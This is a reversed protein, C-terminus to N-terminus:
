GALTGQERGATKKPAADHARGYRRLIGLVLLEYFILWCMFTSYLTMDSGELPLCFRLV